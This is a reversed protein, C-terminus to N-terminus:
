RPENSIACNSRPNARGKAAIRKALIVRKLLAHRDQPSRLDVAVVLRAVALTTITFPKFQRSFVDFGESAALEHLKVM